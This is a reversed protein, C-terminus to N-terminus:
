HEVREGDRDSILRVHIRVPRGYDSLAQALKELTKASDDQAGALPKLRAFASPGAERARKGGQLTMEQVESQRECQDDAFRIGDRGVTLVSGRRFKVSKRTVSM